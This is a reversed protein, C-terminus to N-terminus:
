WPRAPRRVYTWKARRTLLDNATFAAIGNFPAPVGPFRLRSGAGGKRAVIITHEKWLIYEYARVRRMMALLERYCGFFVHLGSEVPYGDGDVWSSVKGGLVPRKELLLVQAGADALDAAATLGALGGGIIITRTGPM